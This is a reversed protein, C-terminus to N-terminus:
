LINGMQILNTTILFLGFQRLYTQVAPRYFFRLWQFFLNLPLEQLFLQVPGYSFKRFDLAAPQHQIVKTPICILLGCFHFPAFMGGNHLGHCSGLFFQFFIKSWLNCIPQYTLLCTFPNNEKVQESQQHIPKYRSFGMGM